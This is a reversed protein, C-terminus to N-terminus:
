DFDTQSAVSWNSLSLFLFKAIKKQTTSCHPRRSNNTSRAHLGDCRWVSCFAYYFKRYGSKIQKSEHLNGYKNAIEGRNFSSTQQAQKPGRFKRGSQQNTVNSSQYRFSRNIANKRSSLLIFPISNWKLNFFQLQQEM